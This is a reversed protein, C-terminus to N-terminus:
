RGYGVPMILLPEHTKPLGLVRGVDKDDFAGVIGARLGLAEAQLFLNQGIHGAEIMAYRIGRRGYKGTIRDYEATIVFNVPAGAMWMQSLSARALGARLDGESVRIVAHGKPEYHYVGASAGEVTDKGIASYIDMPYFAGASPAARKFGGTGTIGQASWLLQAWEHLSLAASDFSRITRRHQIAHELSVEGTSRAAPLKMNREKRTKNYAWSRTVRLPCFGSMAGAALFATARALLDRRTINEM